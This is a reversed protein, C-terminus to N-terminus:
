KYEKLFNFLLNEEEKLLTESLLFSNEIIYASTILLYPNWISIVLGNNLSKPIQRPPLFYVYLLICLAMTM